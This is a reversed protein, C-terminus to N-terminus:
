SQPNGSGHRELLYMRKASYDWVTKYRSLIAYGLSVVVPSHVGMAEAPPFPQDLVGVTLDTTLANEGIVLGSLRVQEGEAPAMRGDASLRDLSDQEAFLAGSQGTDFVLELATSGLTASTIPNNPLRRTEFPIVALITEGELYREVVDPGDKYFTVTLADYDLKIAYGDFFEYGIWGLFDPTIKELLEAAQSEVQMASEFTLDGVRIPGVREHLLITFTQGSGFFGTGADTGGSLPIRRNNLSLASRAGTDFMLKGRVGNVESDIFPINRALTFPLTVEEGTLHFGPEVTHAQAVRGATAVSFLTLAFIAATKFASM